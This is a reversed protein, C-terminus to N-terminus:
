EFYADIVEFLDDINLDGDFYDDIAKILEDIQIGPTGDTDYTDVPDMPTVAGDDVDTVNITM